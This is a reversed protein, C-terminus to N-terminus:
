EGIGFTFGFGFLVVIGGPQLIGLLIKGEDPLPSGDTVRWPNTEMPLALGGELYITSRRGIKFYYLATLNITSAKLYDLTINQTNGNADTISLKMGTLGPCYSYGLGFSWGGWPHLDYSIGGSFKRGWGGLGMAARLSYHDAIRLNGSIGILGTFSNIGSGLGLAFKPLADQIPVTNGEGAIKDQFYPKKIADYRIDQVVDKAISTNIKQGNREIIFYINISDTHTITCNIKEGNTKIILDQAFLFISSCLLLITLISKKM